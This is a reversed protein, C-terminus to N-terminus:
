LIQQRLYNILDIRTIIGYFADDDAVDAKVAMARSGLGVIEQVTSEADAESRSYNVVVCYGIRALALSTARGVGTGGGTVIAVKNASSM